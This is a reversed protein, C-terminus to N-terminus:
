RVLHTEEAGAQEPHGLVADPDHHAVGTAAEPLLDHDLAVLHAQHEGRRLDPCRHLPDLVAALVQEGGALRAVLVGRHLHGEVGVAGDLGRM